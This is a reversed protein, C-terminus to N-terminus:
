SSSGSYNNNQFVGFTLLLECVASTYSAGWVSLSQISDRVGHAIIISGILLSGDYMITSEAGLLAGFEM